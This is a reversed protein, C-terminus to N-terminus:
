NPLVIECIQVVGALEDAMTFKTGSFRCKKGLDRAFKKLESLVKDAADFDYTTTSTVEGHEISFRPGVFGGGDSFTGDFCIIMSGSNNAPLISGAWKSGDSATFDFVPLVFRTAM